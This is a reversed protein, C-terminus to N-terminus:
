PPLQSLPERPLIRRARAINPALALLKGFKQPVVSAGLLQRIQRIYRTQFPADFLTEVFLVCWGQWQLSEGRHRLLM